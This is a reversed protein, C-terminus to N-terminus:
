LLQKIRNKLEPLERPLKVDIVKLNKDVLIFVPISNNWIKDNPFLETFTNKLNNKQLLWTDPGLFDLHYPTTKLGSEAVLGAIKEGDNNAAIVILQAQDKDLSEQVTPLTQAM